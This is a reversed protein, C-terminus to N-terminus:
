RHQLCGSRIRAGRGYRIRRGRYPRFEVRGGGIIPVQWQRVQEGTDGEARYWTGPGYFFGYRLAVFELGRTRSARAELENRM